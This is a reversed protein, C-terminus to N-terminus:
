KALKRRIDQRGNIIALIGISGNEIEDIVRFGEVILERTNTNELEPVQRGSLPFKVLRDVSSYLLNVIVEAYHASDREIFLGIESIDALAELSWVVTAV